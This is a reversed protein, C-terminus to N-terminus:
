ERVLEIGCLVPPKSKDTVPRLEIHFEDTVDVSPIQRVIPIRSGGAQQVVDFSELMKKRQLYVDFVRQGVDIKDPELFHLRVTYPKVPPSPGLELTLRMSVAGELGSASVWPIASQDSSAQVMTTHDRFWRQLKGGSVRVPIDPSTGGVSPYELWLTGDDALRDGPAGFNIGIKKVPQGSAPAPLTSHTWLEIDSEHILAL